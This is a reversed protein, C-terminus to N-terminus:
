NRLNKLILRKKNLYGYMLILGVWITSSQYVDDRPYAFLSYYFNFGILVFLIYVFDTQNNKKYFFKRNIVLM